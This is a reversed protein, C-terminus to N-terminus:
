RGSRRKPGATGRAAAKGTRAGRNAAAKRTRARSATGAAPKGTRSSSVGPERRSAAAPAPAAAEGGHRPQRLGRQFEAYPRANLVAERTLGARRAAFVGYRINELQTVSHADTDIVIRVGLQHAFRAHADNLDTRDPQANIEM